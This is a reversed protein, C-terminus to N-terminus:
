GAVPELNVHVHKHHPTLSLWDRDEIDTLENVAVGHIKHEGTEDPYETGFGHPLTVHGSMVTDTVEAPAEAEGRKSVIRIRDGDVVGLATADDPNIRLSGAKDKKRWEPDRIVDNANSSRREGASLVFPFRDGGRAPEEDALSRYEDALEEIFLHIKGDPHAIRDWTQSYESVSYIMGSPSNVLKDFLNNALELGDGSIGAARVEDPYRMSAQMAAGFMIAAPAMNGLTPGLADYLVVPLKAGVDPDAASAEGLAAIFLERGQQAADALDTTANPKGGMAAVLRSHIEAEPLSDGLPELIPHRVQFYNAPMEGAFFTAEPKEYQSAAPLVYDAARATETMAVDIVVLCELKAFAERFRKSDPLTHLPNASEVIIARFRNPHDTDIADPIAACAMLGSLMPSGTVPDVEGEGSHGCLPALRLPLNMGGPKAFNGTVLYLLRQLWSNLTSHPAMEIGLDEETSLSHANGMTRAAARLESEDIGCKRACDAIDTSLILDRLEDWGTCHEALFKEDTLGESVMIALLAALAWADTGPRARLHHDAMAATESVRPDMVILKRVDDNRIKNLENRSEPFGHSQWPNKGIFVACDTHEFDGMAGLNQKGFMKGQAWFMGTKEQALANSRYKVGLTGLVGRAYAGPFHNGQGGGGYYLIKDGGVSDRIGTLREAVEAIAVDWSVEEFTGDDRRRLPTTLRDRGNQYYDIRLAKECTYGKSAPHEKDGRVRTIKRGDLRVEIGCNNSCLICATKHWVKTPDEAGNSKPEPATATSAPADKGARSARLAALRAQADSM